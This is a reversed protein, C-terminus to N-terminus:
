GPMISGDFPTGKILIPSKEDRVITHEIKNGDVWHNWCQALYRASKATSMFGPASSRTNKVNSSLLHINAARRPDGSSLDEGNIAGSWFEGVRDGCSEIGFRFTALAVSVTAARTVARRIHRGHGASFEFYLGAADAYERFMNIHDDPHLTRNLNGNGRGFDNAIFRVAASLCNVQTPTFGFEDAVGIASFMDSSTRRLNVDHRYYADKPDEDTFCVDLIQPIGSKVVAALTHQGNVLHLKGEHGAFHIQTGQRFNGRRMEEALYEVHRARIRRQKEYNNETLWMEAQLPAVRHVESRVSHAQKSEVQVDDIQDYLVSATMKMDELPNFYTQCFTPNCARSKTQSFNATYLM